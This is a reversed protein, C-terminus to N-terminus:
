PTAELPPSPLEIVLPQDCLACVRQGDGDSKPVHGGPSRMSLPYDDTGHRREHRNTAPCPSTLLAKTAATEKLREAAAGQPEYGPVDLGGDVHAQAIIDRQRELQAQREPNPQPTPYYPVQVGDPNDPDLPGYEQETM